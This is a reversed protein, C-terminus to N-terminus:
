RFDTTSGPQLGHFGPLFLDKGAFSFCRNGVHVTVPQTVTRDGAAYDMFEVSAKVDLRDIGRAIAREMHGTMRQLYMAFVEKTRKDGWAQPLLTLGETM